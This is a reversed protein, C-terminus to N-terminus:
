LQANKLVQMMDMKVNLRSREPVNKLHPLLSLLFMKEPDDPEYRMPQSEVNAFAFSEEGYPNINAMPQADVTEVHDSAVCGSTDMGDDDNDSERYLKIKAKARFGVKPKKDEDSESSNGGTGNPVKGGRHQVCKALFRLRESHAYPHKWKEPNAAYKIYSDRYGKWKKQIHLELERIESKTLQADGILETIIDQWLKVRVKLPRYDKHDPDWLGPRKKVAEILKEPDYEFFHSATEAM